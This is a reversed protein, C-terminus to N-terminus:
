KLETWIYMIYKSLLNNLLYLSIIAIDNKHTSRKIMIFYGVEYKLISELSLM